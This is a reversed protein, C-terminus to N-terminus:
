ADHDPRGENSRTDDPRWAIAAAAIGVVAGIFIYWSGPILSYAVVAAGGSAAWPLLDGRGRWLGAILVVFVAAFVVDLGYRAPDAVLSGLLAGAVTSTLWSVYAPMCLGFYYAMSFRGEGVRRISLAWAEDVMFFLAGYARGASVQSLAPALAASMLTHRLGVLLTAFALTGVAAPSTWLEVAVFQGAGTFVLASMLGVELPSLGAQAAIAGFLAGYLVVSVVIPAIDVVGALFDSSLRPSAPACHSPDAM